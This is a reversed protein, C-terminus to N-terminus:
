RSALGVRIAALLKKEADGPLMELTGGAANFHGGGGLSAAMSRVDVDGHSRLSFKCAGAREECLLAAVQASAIGRMREVFGELDERGCGCGTFDSLRALCFAVLGNDELRVREMLRGWLHFSDLSMGRSLSERLEAISCGGRELLACLTFVDASTNGHCFGGTDTVLGLAVSEALNGELAIGASLAVYAMLQATAAASPEIWCGSNGLGPSGLHHDINICEIGGQWLGAMEPDLRSAESCDLALLCRPEFPAEALGRCLKAPMPFFNLTHPLGSASYLFFRKGLSKLIHAAAALSGAADGDPRTHACVAFRDAGGVAQSMRRAGGRFFRPISENLFM